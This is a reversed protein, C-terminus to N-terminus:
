CAVVKEGTLRTDIQTRIRIYIEINQHFLSKLLLVSMCSTLLLMTSIKHEERNETQVAGAKAIIKAIDKDVLNYPRVSAAKKKCLDGHVTFM